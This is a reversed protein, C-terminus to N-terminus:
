ERPPRTQPQSCLVTRLAKELETCDFPKPLVADAGLRSAWRLVIDRPLCTGGGSVAIVRTGPHHRKIISLLELGDTEPMVIELLVLDPPVVDFQTMASRSDCVTINMPLGRARLAICNDWFNLDTDVVLLQIPQKMERWNSVAAGAIHPEAAKLAGTCNRLGYNYSTV